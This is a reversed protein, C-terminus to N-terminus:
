EEEEVSVKVRGFGRTRMTGIYKIAKIGKKVIDRYEKPCIIEGHFVNGKEIYRCSRLTGDKVIGDELSTFTYLGTFCDKIKEATIGEQLLMANKIGGSVTFDTFILRGDDASYEGGKGFLIDTIDEGGTWDIINKIQERLIGKFTSAMLYPFGSSDTLVAIDEDGPISKGSGFITNSLLEIKVKM